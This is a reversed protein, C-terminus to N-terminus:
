ARGSTREMYKMTHLRMHRWSCSTIMLGNENRLNIPKSTDLISEDGLHIGIGDTTGAYIQPFYLPIEVGWSESVNKLGDNIITNAMSHSAWSFPNSGREKVTGNKVYHELYTHMRTGRAASETTIKKANEHGISDRWRNLSEITKQSKTKDLITTVSPVRSGDPTLYSRKGNHEQRSIAHYDFKQNYKM